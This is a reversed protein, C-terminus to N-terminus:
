AALEQSLYVEIASLWAWGLVVAATFAVIVFAGITGGQQSGAAIGIFAVAYVVGTLRCVATWASLRRQSFRRAFVFCAAILGVFGVAGSVLHLLGHWSVDHAAAPTGPPFGYAPDAAFLGAGILGLGYLAVLRPGWVSAPGRRVASRLGVASALVLLGTLLLLGSHIWGLDGNAMLSLDHRLPDFGPRTLMELAGVGVYLPGAAIGGALLARTPSTASSASPRGAAAV